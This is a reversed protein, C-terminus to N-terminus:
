LRIGVSLEVYESERFDNAKVAAGVFMGAPRPLHYRLGVKQYNWSADDSLGLKPQIPYMGISIRLAFNHYHFEQLAALGLAFPSYGPGAAVADEGYVAKDNAKLTKIDPVFFSELSIGSSFKLSYRYIIDASVSFRPYAKFIKSKQGVDAVSSNYRNWDSRTCHVGGGAALEWSLGREFMNHDDERFDATGDRYSGGGGTVDERLYYRLSVGGELMNLGYNPLASRGNSYHKARLRLAIGWNEDFRWGAHLCAAAHVMLVSSVYYNLPNLVPDYRVPNFAAGVELGYGASFNRFRFVDREFFGYISYYNGFYSQGPVEIASMFCICSGLGISPYGYAQAYIDYDSPETTLGVAIDASMYWHSELEVRNNFLYGGYTRAELSLHDRDIRQAGLPLTMLFTAAATLKGLTRM